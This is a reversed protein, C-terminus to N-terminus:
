ATVRRVVMPAGIGAPQWEFSLYAHSGANAEAQADPAAVCTVSANGPAVDFDVGGHSLTGGDPADIELTIPQGGSARLAVTFRTETALGNRLRAIALDAHEDDGLQRFGAYFYPLDTDMMADIATPPAFALRTRLVRAPVGAAIAYPPLDRTVVSNAGVVCGRGIRVGPMIAVNIGLWCDEDIRVPRSRDSWPRQRARRDQVRVPLAPEDQFAHQASSIYLNAACVCGAGMAVDGLIQSRHQISVRAGLSLFAGAAIDCDDGIWVGTGTVLQGMAPVSIATRRGIRTGSAIQAAGHVVVRASWHFVVHPFRRRLALRAKAVRVFKGLPGLAM